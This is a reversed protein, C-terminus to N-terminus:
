KFFCGADFLSLQGNRWGVQKAEHVVDNEQLEGVLLPSLPNHLVMNRRVAEINSNAYCYKCLHGCTDYQGIDKGLLCSCEPRQSKSKPVDLRCHLANEFVAQTMCGSCDAGYKALERGEACTRVTMDYKKAIRIMERGLTLRDQKNVERAQPFNRQVKSYLDIFSIVCTRTAGALGEAMREFDALHREVTYIETVMIPDYRWGMSDEGVIKSLRRFDEIVKEKAPVNPEVDRGYPTITVFWYQGWPELLMRYELMPAPNKTCFVIVDVVEPSLSYKTVRNPNYPNRTCVYGAKLRNALWESYFAPIDTRMGTNIIM